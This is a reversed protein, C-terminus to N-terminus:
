KRPLAPRAPPPLSPKREAPIQTVPPPATSQSAGMHTATGVTGSWGCLDTCSMHCVGGQYRTRSGCTIEGCQSCILFGRRDGCWPCRNGTMDFEHIAFDRSGIAPASSQQAAFGDQTKIIKHIAYLGDADRRRWIIVFPESTRTCRHRTTREPRRALRREERKAAVRELTRSLAGKAASTPKTPLM